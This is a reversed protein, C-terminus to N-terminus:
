ASTPWPSWRHVGVIADAGTAALIRPVLRGLDAECNAGALLYKRRRVVPWGESSLREALELLDDQSGLEVRVYWSAFGTAASWSREEDQRRAWAAYVDAANFFAADQWENDVPHWHELWCDAGVGLQALVDRAVWEAELAADVSRSWMFIRTEASTVRIGDGLCGHMILALRSVVADWRRGSSDHLALSVRWDEGM